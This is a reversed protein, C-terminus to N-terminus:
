GHRGFHEDINHLSIRMATPRGHVCAWPNPIRRMDELLRRMEPLTLKQNAKVAGKCSKMFAVYDKKREITDLRGSENDLDQILDNVFPILEDNSLFKPAAHINWANNDEM